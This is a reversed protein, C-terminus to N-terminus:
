SNAFVKEAIARLKEVRNVTRYFFYNDFTIKRELITNKEGNFSETIVQTFQHYPEDNRISKIHDTFYMNIFKNKRDGKPIVQGKVVEFWNSKKQIESAIVNSELRYLFQYNLCQNHALYLLAYPLNFKNVYRFYIGESESFTKLVKEFLTDSLNVDSISRAFSHVTEAHELLIETLENSVVGKERKQTGSFSSPKAFPCDEYARQDFELFGKIKSPYHRGHTKQKTGDEEYKKDIYLNVVTIPNGCGPCYAFYRKETGITQYFPPRKETDREFSAVSLETFQKSEPDCTYYKM